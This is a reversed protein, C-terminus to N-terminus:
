TPGKKEKKIKELSKKTEAGVLLLLLGNGLVRCGQRLSQLLTDLASYLSDYNSQRFLVYTGLYLIQMGELLILLLFRSSLQGHVLLLGEFIILWVGGAALKKVTYKNWLPLLLSPIGAGGVSLLWWRDPYALVLAALLLLVATCFFFLNWLQKLRRGAALPVRANRGAEDVTKLLLRLHEKKTEKGQQDLHVAELAWTMTVFAGGFTGTAIFMLACTAGIQWGIAAWMGVEPCAWWAGILWRLPYGVCVLAITLKARNKERAKEYCAGLVLITGCLMAMAVGRWLLILAAAAVLRLLLDAAAAAVAGRVGLMEVPLRRRKEALPHHRDEEMGRIDNWLYRAQYILGDVVFVAALLSVAERLLSIEGGGAGFRVCWGSLYGLVIFIVKQVDKIRPYLFYSIGGKWRGPAWGGHMARDRAREYLERSCRLSIGLTVACIALMLGFCILLGYVLGPLESSQQQISWAQFAIFTIDLAFVSLFVIKMNISFFAFMGGSIHKPNLTILPKSVREWHPLEEYETESLRSELEVMYHHRFTSLLGLNAIYAVASCNSFISMLYLFISIEWAIGEIQGFATLVTLFTVLVTLIQFIQNKSSREDERCQELEYLLEESTM